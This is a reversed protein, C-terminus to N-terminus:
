RHWEPSDLYPILLANLITLADCGPHLWCEIGALDNGGVPGRDGGAREGPQSAAGGPIQAGVKEGDGAVEEPRGVAMLPRAGVGSLGAAVAPGLRALDAAAGCLCAAGAGSASFAAALRAAAQAPDLQGTGESAAVHVGGAQFLRRAFGAPERFARPEGLSALFVVPRRGAAALGDAADRLAEFAAADRRRPLPPIRERVGNRVLLRGLEAITAGDAAARVLEDLEVAPDALADLGADGGPQLGLGPGIRQEGEADPGPGVGAVAPGVSVRRESSRGPDPSLADAVAGAGRGPPGAARSVPGGQSGPPEVEQPDAYESVGTVADLRRALRESRRAWVTEIRRGIEGSLLAAAMGGAAEVAQLEAWAVRALEGTLHELYYSGGAPDVVRALRGEEALVLQTTRALRRAAPGSPGAAADCPLCTVADAGGVVAAWAQGAVRVINVRRDRRSLTRPSTVAHIRSPPAPDAGCAALVAAWLRRLARLKAVGLFLDRGIALRFELGRAAVAPLLDARELVRLYHVGTALAFGLEQGATAGAQHYPLTSVTVPRAGPREAACWAALGGMEAELVALPAPLEGDRAMAALPDAGFSWDPAEGSPKETRPGDTPGAGGGAAEDGAQRGEGGDVALALAAVPLANGGADLTVALRPCNGLSALLAALDAARRLPLGDGDASGGGAARGEGDPHGEGAQGLRANRDFRLWLGDCGGDVEDAVARAPPGDPCQVLSWVQWGRGAAPAPRAGRAFPWLGPFGAEDPRHSRPYDATYLPEVPIGDLTETRLRELVGPEASGSEVRARWTEYDVAWAAGGAAPGRSESM